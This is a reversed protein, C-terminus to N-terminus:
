DNLKHESQRLVVIVQISHSNSSNEAILMLLWRVRPSVVSSKERAILSPKLFTISPFLRLSIKGPLYRALQFCLRMTRGGFVLLVKWTIHLM